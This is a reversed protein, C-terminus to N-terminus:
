LRMSTHSVLDILAEESGGSGREGARRPLSAACAPLGTGSRKVPRGGRAVAPCLRGRVWPPLEDPTLIQFVRQLWSQHMYGVIQQAVRVFEVHGWVRENM